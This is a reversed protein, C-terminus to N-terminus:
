FVRYRFPFFPYPLIVPIMSITAKQYCALSLILLAVTERSSLWFLAPILSTPPKAEYSFCLFLASFLIAEETSLLLDGQRKCNKPWTISFYNGSVCLLLSSCHCAPSCLYSLLLFSAGAKIRGLGTGASTNARCSPASSSHVALHTLPFARQICLLANQSQM